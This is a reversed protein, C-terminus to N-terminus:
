VKHFTRGETVYGFVAEDGDFVFGSVKRLQLAKRCMCHCYAFTRELSVQFIAGFGSVEGEAYVRYATPLLFLNRETESKQM